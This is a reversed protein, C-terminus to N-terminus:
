TLLAQRPQRQRMAYWLPLAALWGMVSLARGISDPVTSGYHLVVEPQDPYVVMFHPTARYVTPAGSVKWNPYHSVKILHPEGVARTVFRIRGPSLEEELIPDLPPDVPVPELIAGRNANDVEAGYQGSSLVPLWDRPAQQDPRLFLYPQEVVGTAELWRLGAKQLGRADQANDIRVFRPENEPIVVYKGEHTTLEFLEWDDEGALRKWRTDTSLAQRLAPWRAIVHKVNLLELHRTGRDPNFAAPTVLNPFGASNASIEGQIRYAALSGEASNVIGGELIPKGIRYPVSEFIRSSGLAENEPALDYALRGPTNTLAEIVLKQYVPWRPKEEAGTYNWRAWFLVRASAPTAWLIVLILFAVVAMPSRPLRLALPNMGSLTLMCLGLLIFPWIRNNVFVQAVHEYGIFFTVLSLLLMVLGMLGFHNGTALAHIAGLGALPLLYRLIPPLTKMFDIDWNDGFDVTYAQRAILPVLWWAMLLLGLLAELGLVGVARIFGSRRAFLPIFLCALCAMISTFFHSSIMLAILFTTRLRFRGEDADRVASGLFLLMISFSLSNSIMGALTSFFNVGWMTHRDDFLLVLSFAAFLLPGPRQLQMWRAAVFACFPLTSIGLLSVLKFAVELPMIFNLAAMLGYPLFFYFQFAPFGCWWGPAWSIISGNRDLSDRLLAALYHHSVTDGGSTMTSALVWKWPIHLAIFSTILGLILLAVLTAEFRLGTKPRTFLPDVKRAPLLSGALLLVALVTLWPKHKAARIWRLLTPSDSIFVRGPAYVDVHKQALTLEALAHLVMLSGALCTHRELSFDVTASQHPALRVQQVSNSCALQGEPFVLRLTVDMIEPSSSRIVVPFRGSERLTISPCSLTLPIQDPPNPDTLLRSLVHTTQPYGKLDEYRIAAVVAHIGPRAPAGGLPLTWSHSGAVPLEPLPSGTSVSAGIAVVPQIGMAVETGANSVVLRATVMEKSYAVSLSTQLAIEGRVSLTALFPLLTLGFVTKRLMTVPSYPPASPM